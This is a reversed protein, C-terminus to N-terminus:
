DSRKGRAYPALLAGVEAALVPASATRLFLARGAAAVRARRDGDVLAARITRALDDASGPQCVFADVGDTFLADNGPGRGVVIPRGLSLFQYAKGPVVRQGKPNVAFHGALCLAARRAEDALTELPLWGLWEVNPPHRGDSAEGAIRFRVDDAELLRAADLITGVGHLPLSSSYYFVTRPVEVTAPEFRFVEDDTGVPLVHFPRVVGVLDQLFAAHADTDTLVVDAAAHARRDLGLLRRGLWSDPRVKRRDLCITDHVSIFHDFALPTGPALRRLLIALPQGLFGAVLLDHRRLRGPRSMIRWLTQLIRVPYKRASSSLVTVEAGADRLARLLVHNRVYSPERLSAFLVRTGELPRRMAAPPTM